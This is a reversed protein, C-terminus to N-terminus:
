RQRRRGAVKLSKAPRSTPKAPYGQSVRIAAADHTIRLAVAEAYLREAETKGVGLKRAAIVVPDSGARAGTDSAAAFLEKLSIDPHQKVFQTVVNSVRIRATRRRRLAALQVGKPYPAGFAEDWSGVECNVVKRFAKLYSRALWDPAVLGARACIAMGDLPQREYFDRRALLQQAGVVRAVAGAPSDYADSQAMAEALTAVFPDFCM